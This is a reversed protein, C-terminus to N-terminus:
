LYVHGNEAMPLAETCIRFNAVGHLMAAIKEPVFHMECILAEGVFDQVFVKNERRSNATMMCSMGSTVRPCNRKTTKLKVM